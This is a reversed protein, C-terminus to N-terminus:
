FCNDEDPALSVTIVIGTRRRQLTRILRRRLNPRPESRQRLMKAMMVLMMRALPWLSLLPWSSTTQIRKQSSISAQTATIALEMVAKRERKAM